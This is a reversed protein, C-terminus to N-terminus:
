ISILLPSIKQIDAESFAYSLPVVFVRGAMMMEFSKLLLCELEKSTTYRVVDGLVSSGV